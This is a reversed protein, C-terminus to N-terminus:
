PKFFKLNPIDKIGFMEKTQEHCVDSLDRLPESIVWFPNFSYVTRRLSGRMSTLARNVEIKFAFYESIM